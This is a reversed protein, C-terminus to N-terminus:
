GNSFYKMQNTNCFFIKTKNQKEEAMVSLLEKGQLDKLPLFYLTKKNQSIFHKTRNYQNLALFVGSFTLCAKSWAM